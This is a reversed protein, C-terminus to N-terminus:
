KPGCSTMKSGLWVMKSGLIVMTSVQIVMKSGSIVMKSGLIIMKSGQIVMLRSLRSLTDTSVSVYTSEIETLLLILKLQSKPLIIVYFMCHIALFKLSITWFPWNRDFIMLNSVLLNTYKALFPQIQGLIVETPWCNIFIVIKTLKVLNPVNSEFM